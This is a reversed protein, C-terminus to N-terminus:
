QVIVVAVHGGFGDPKRGPTGPPVFWEGDEDVFSYEHVGPELALELRWEGNTREMPIPSWGSFSGAVSPRGAVDAAPVVLAVSRQGEVLVPVSAAASFPDAGLRVQVGLSWTRRPAIWFLIDEAQVGGRGTIAVRDTLSVRGGVEWGTGDMEPDLWEAVGAWVQYRDGTLAVRASPQTYGGEGAWWHDLDARVDVPGRTTGIGAGLRGLLRSESEAGLAHYGHRGGARIGARVGELWFTRHVDLSASTGSGTDEATPDDFVFGTGVASFQWPSRAIARDIWGSLTAWSPGTDGDLPLGASAALGAASRLLAYGINVTEGTALGTAHDTNHGLGLWLLSQASVVGQPAFLLLGAILAARFV